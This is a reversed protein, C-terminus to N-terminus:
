AVDNRKKNAFTTIHKLKPEASTFSIRILYILLKLQNKM